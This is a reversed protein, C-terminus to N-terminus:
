ITSSNSKKKFIRMVDRRRRKCERSVEGRMKWFWKEYPTEEDDQTTITDSEGPLIINDEPNGIKSLQSQSQLFPSDFHTWFLGYQNKTESIANEEQKQKIQELIEEQHQSNFGTNETIDEDDESLGLKFTSEKKEEIPATEPNFLSRLTETNNTQKESGFTPIFEDESEEENDEQDEQDEQHEEIEEDEELTEEVGLNHEKDYLEKVGETSLKEGLVDFDVENGEDDEDYYVEEQPMEITSKYQDLIKSGKVVDISDNSDNEELELGEMEFDHRIVKRRGKADLVIDEKDIGNTDDDLDVPKEFDYNSFLSALIANNKENDEKFDDDTEAVVDGSPVANKGYNTADTGDIACKSMVISNYHMKNIKVREIIHNDGSRWTGDVYKWALDNTTKNKEIGWLKTKYGKLTKLEGNILIRLTQQRKLFHTNPRETKRHRGKLVEGRGSLRSYQQSYPNKSLTSTDYSKIGQLAVNPASNKTNAAINNFTHPSKLYGLSSNNPAVTTSNVLEGTISNVFHKSTSEQIRKIRATNIQEKRAREAKHIDPRNFDKSWREQFSEKAKDISLKMGMYLVDNLTGKLKEFNKPTIKLTMFGYHFDANPKTHIELDSIVEGFKGFRASLDNNKEALRKSINGIHIRTDVAVEEEISM